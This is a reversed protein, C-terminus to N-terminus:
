FRHSATAVASTDLFIKQVGAARAYALLTEYLRQGVGQGRYPAAVFFKKLVACSRERMMLGITGVVHGAATAAWFEGGPRRYHVAIDRLDPQEALSLGIGAEDNQIHLILAVAEDAYAERFPEVHVEDPYPKRCLETRVASVDAAGVAGIEQATPATEAPREGAGFMEHKM